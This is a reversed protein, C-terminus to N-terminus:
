DLRRCGDCCEAQGRSEGHRGLRVGGSVRPLDPAGGRSDRDAAQEAAHDAPAQQVAQQLSGGLGLGASARHVPLRRGLRGGYGRVALAARVRSALIARVRGALIARVHGALIARVHGALIARVHGALIARVHGALIARM